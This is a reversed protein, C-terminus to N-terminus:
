IQMLVHPGVEKNYYTILDVIERSVEITTEMQKGTHEMFNSKVCMKPVNMDEFSVSYVNTVRIEFQMSITKM